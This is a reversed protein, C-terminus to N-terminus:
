ADAVAEHARAPHSRNAADQDLLQERVSPDLHATWEDIDRAQAALIILRHAIAEAQEPNLWIGEDAISTGNESDHMSEDWIAIKPILQGEYAETCKLVITEAVDAPNNTWGNPTLLQHTM